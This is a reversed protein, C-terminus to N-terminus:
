PKKSKITPTYLFKSQHDNKYIEKLNTANFDIFKSDTLLGTNRLGKEINLYNISKKGENSSGGYYEKESKQEYEFYKSIEKYQLLTIKSYYKILFDDFSHTDPQIEAEYESKTEDYPNGSSRGLSWKITFLNQNNTFDNFLKELKQEKNKAQEINKFIHKNSEVFFEVLETALKQSIKEM